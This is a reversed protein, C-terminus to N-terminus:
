VRVGAETEQWAEINTITEGRKLAELIASKNEEIRVLDPRAFALARIDSVRYKWVKRVTMGEARAPAAPARQVTAAKNAAELNAAAIREREERAVRDLDEISKSGKAAEDAARRAEAEKAKAEDEIRKLEAQRLREAEAARRQEAVQFESVLKAIRQEEKQLSEVFAAAAKDIDKGLTLVPAKIEVRATEIQRCLAKIERMTSVAFEQQSPNTVTTVMSATAIIEDRKTHAEPDISVAVRPGFGAIAIATSM